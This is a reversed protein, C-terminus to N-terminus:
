RIVEVLRKQILFKRKRGRDLHDFKLVKAPLDLLKIVTEVQADRDKHLSAERYKHLVVQCARIWLVKCALPVSRYCSGHSAIELPSKLDPRPRTSGLLPKSNSKRVNKACKEENTCKSGLIKSNKLDNKTKEEVGLRARKDLTFLASRLTVSDVKRCKNQRCQAGEDALRDACENGPVGAHAPVKYFEVTGNIKLAAIRNRLHSIRAANNDCAIYTGVLHNYVYESDTLLTITLEGSYLECAASLALAVAELEAANNTGKM